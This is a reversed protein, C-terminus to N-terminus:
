NGNLENWAQDVDKESVGTLESVSKILAAFNKDSPLDVKNKVMKENERFFSKATEVPDEDDDTPTYVDKGIMKEPAHHINDMDTRLHKEKGKEGPLFYYEAEDMKNLEERILKKLRQTTLKM